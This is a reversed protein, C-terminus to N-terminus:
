RIVLHCLLFGLLLFLVAAAASVLLIEWRLVLGYLLWGGGARLTTAWSLPVKLAPKLPEVEPNALYEEMRKHDIGLISCVDNRTLYEQAKKRGFRYDHERFRESFFGVFAAIGSGALEHEDALVAIVNMIDRDDLRAAAELVAIGSVFAEALNAGSPLRELHRYLDRYQHRLRTLATEERGKLLLHNLNEAAILLSNVDPVSGNELADALEKAREDLIRVDRNTEEAMIWDHFAAQRFFVRVIEPLMRTLVLAKATPGAASSRVAHPSIFVYIRNDSDRCIQGVAHDAESEEPSHPKEKSITALRTNAASLREEVGADVLTKAIGLPQNQLVGGDTYAFSWGFHGNPLVYTKSREAGGKPPPGAPGAPTVANVFENEHRRIQQPRFAFPFAGCAVAADRIVTWDADSEQGDPTLLKLGDTKEPHVVFLRQDVSRTYNFGGDDNGVIPIQYDVGNLNTLSLGLRLPAGPELASHRTVPPDGDMPEVLMKTGIEKVCDSSCISAWRGEGERLKILVKLSIMKVWALYLPNQDPSEMKDGQFMLWEGLMAATMGGASAGTIVDIYIKEDESADKNHWRIAELLEYAVGAEYSGLSVAGAITMAM